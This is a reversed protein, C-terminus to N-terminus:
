RSYYSGGVDMLRGESPFAVIRNEYDIVKCNVGNCTGNQITYRGSYDPKPFSRDGLQRTYQKITRSQTDIYVTTVWGATGTLVWRGDMWSDDNWRQQAQEREIREQRAREEAKRKKLRREEEARRRQEIKQLEAKRTAIESQLKGKVSSLAASEYRVKEEALSRCKYVDCKLIYGYVLEKNKSSLGKYDADTSMYHQIIGRHSLQFIKKWYDKFGDTNYPSLTNLQSTLSEVVANHSDTSKIRKYASESESIAKEFADHKVNDKSAEKEFKVASALPTKYNKDAVVKQHIRNGITALSSSVSRGNAPYAFRLAETPYTSDDNNYEAERYVVTHSCSQLTLAVVLCTYTINKM